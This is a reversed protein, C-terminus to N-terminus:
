KIKIKVAKMAKCIRVFEMAKDIDAEEFDVYVRVKGGTKVYGNKGLTKMMKPFDVYAIDMDVRTSIGSITGSDTYQWIGIEDPYNCKDNWEACWICYKDRVGKEVYSLLQSRSMYVGVYYGAAQVVSCFRDVMATVNTKGTTFQKKEELDLFVPYEFQKGAITQLFVKAETEAEEVTVAYSYWYVGVNLGAAKAKAYNEEFKPDKQSILRGYGARIIVFDIGAAKVQEFNVAGNHKSVDIGRVAM